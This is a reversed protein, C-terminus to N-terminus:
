SQLYSQPTKILTYKGALSVEKEAIYSPLIIVFCNMLGLLAVSINGKM